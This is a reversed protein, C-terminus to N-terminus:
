GHGPKQFQELIVNCNNMTGADLLGHNWLKIMFLRWRWLLAPAQVLDPGHLKSFAECAWPIHGDALVRQKRVFSNWLHMMQKEDETVDVFDEIMRRDEIDAIDDDVEDESDHDSLVQEMTMPQAGQSHFFRRKQLLKRNKPYSRAVSLKKTKVFQPLAPPTLNLDPLSQFSEPDGYLPARVSQFRPSSADREASANIKDPLYNISIPLESDLVLPHVNKSSQALSTLKRRRLAKSCFFFTHREPHVGDAVIESGRIDTKVSVNVAQVEKTVWFEFNFLDHSSPLHCRLGNFSACKVLCFPCAFDETVETKQLKNNYYRYNFIVNGARLRIIHPLLSDPIDSHALSDYPSRWKAGLEQAAISVQLQQLLALARNNHPIQFSVCRDEGLCSTEMVCSHLDVTSLMEARDGMSLNQSKKWSKHLLELPIKGMFCQGGINEPFSSMGMHDKFLQACSVFLIFLSGTKLEASLKNIEPLVFKVQAQYKGEVRTCTALICARRFCYVESNEVVAPSNVSRSLLVCLPFLSQSQSGDNVSSPLSISMQIRKIHKAQIKYQLCRQLFSPNNVARHQLINYLEVPKCYISLSEAAVQEEASLHAHRDQPCMSRSYYCNCVSKWIRPNSRRRGSPSSLAEVPAAVMSEGIIGMLATKGTFNLGIAPTAYFDKETIVRNSGYQSFNGAQQPPSQNGHFVLDFRKFCKLATHRLEGCLQCVVNNFSNVGCQSSSKEYSSNGGNNCRFNAFYASNSNWLVAYRNLVLWSDNQM